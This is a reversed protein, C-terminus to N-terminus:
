PKPKQKMMQAIFGKISMNPNLGNQMFEHSTASMNSSHNQYESELDFDTAGNM